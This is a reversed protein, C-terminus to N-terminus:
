PNGGALTGAITSTPNSSYVGANAVEKFETTLNPVTATPDYPSPLAFNNTAASPVNSPQLTALSTSDTAQPRASLTQSAVNALFVQEFRLTARLGFQTKNDEPADIETLMMNSYSQLRTNLTFFQRNQLLQQLTLFCSISKSKSGTWMGATFQDMTDNMGIELVVCPQIQVANDSINFGSQVPKKTLNVALKHNGRWVADFVLMVSDTKTVKINGTNPDFTSTQSAPIVISYQVKGNTWTTPRYKGFPNGFGTLPNNGKLVNVVAISAGLALTEAAGRTTIIGSAAM